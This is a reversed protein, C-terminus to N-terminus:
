DFVAIALAIWVQHTRCDVTTPQLKYVPNSFFLKDESSQQRLFANTVDEVIQHPNNDGLVM